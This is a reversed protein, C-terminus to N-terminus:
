QVSDIASNQSLADAGLWRTLIDRLEAQRFPKSLFDNMGAGLCRQEDEERAYATLAVIPTSLGQARLRATAELGDLFPMHCDMLILDVQENLLFDIAQQGNDVIELEIGMQQLLISLLSQTTPNDEALLVRRSKSTDSATVILSDAEPSKPRAPQVTALLPLESQKCIELPLQVSFNSGEGPRSEFSLQGGMLQTLEKAITLGLGTGGYKRTTSSDGQDFSDFIRSQAAVPIGVGTDQILFLCDCLGQAQRSNASLSVTVKGVETFKVANGILNLLIQRIRVPDGLVHPLDVATELVIEIGKCHATVNMLRTVDEALRVLDVPVSEIVLRGAEVKSLDLIDNIIALLAEGSQYITEVLQQDQETLDKQRLLDSMGLVGIMPTRIEHSMNALFRSKAVSAQEAREKEAKLARTRIQVELELNKRYRELRQDRDKLARIMEDFGHFLLSFEDNSEKSPFDVLRKERSITKMQAVLQEVPGSIYRQLRVSLLYTLLMAAGMVLLWGLVLSIQHRYLDVLEISLYHYGVHSGEFTIPMFYALRGNEQWLHETGLQVGEAIQRAEAQLFKLEQSSDVRSHSNQSRSYGVVSKGNPWLLYASVVDKRAVLSDLISGVAAHDKIAMSFRANASILRALSNIDDHAIDRSHNLEFFVFQLTTLVLVFTSVLFIIATMKQQVSRPKHLPM